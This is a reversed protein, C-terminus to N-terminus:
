TLRKIQLTAQYGNRNIRINSRPEPTLRILKILYGEVIVSNNRADTNLDITRTHGNKSIRASIKANGAWVCRADTPCRSDEILSVFKVRLQSRPLIREKNIRLMVTESTRPRADVIGPVTMLIVVLLLAKM